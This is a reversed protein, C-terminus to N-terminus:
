RKGECVAKVTDCIMPNNRDVTRHARRARFRLLCTDVAGCHNKIRGVEGKSSKEMAYLSTAFKGKKKAGKSATTRVRTRKSEILKTKLLQALLM